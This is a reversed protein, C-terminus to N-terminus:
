ECPGPATGTRGVFASPKPSACGPTHLYSVFARMRPGPGPQDHCLVQTRTPVVKPKHGGRPAKVSRTPNRVVLEDDIAMRFVGSIAKHAQHQYSKSLGKEAMTAIVLTVHSPKVAKLPVHGIVPYVHLRLVGLVDADIPASARASGPREGGSNPSSRSPHLQTSAPSDRNWAIPRRECIAVAEEKTKAYQTPRATEGSVEESWRVMWLDRTAHKTISGEGNGRKTM